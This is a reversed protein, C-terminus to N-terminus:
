AVIEFSNKLRSAYDTAVNQLKTKVAPALDKTDQLNEVFAQKNVVVSNLIVSPITAMSALYLM